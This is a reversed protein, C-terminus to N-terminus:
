TSDPQDDIQYEWGEQWEFPATVLDALPEGRLLHDLAYRTASHGILLVRQGGREATLDALLGRMQEVVQRYSQGGPFPVDIRHPKEAAVRSVPAGNLDGYDCERLRPDLMIPLGSGDFAIRATQVARVLDSCYVAALRDTRRRQGLERAFQRGAASLTGPLWGTAIGVENDVTLSHTEYVVAVGVCGLRRRRGAPV